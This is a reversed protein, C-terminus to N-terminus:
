CMHMLYFVGLRACHTIYGYSGPKPTYQLAQDFIAGTKKEWMESNIHVAILSLEAKSLPLLRQSLYFSVLSCTWSDFCALFISIQLWVCHYLLYDLLVCM